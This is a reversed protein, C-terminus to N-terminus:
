PQALGRRIAVGGVLVLAEDLRTPVTITAPTVALLVVAIGLVLSNGAFVRWPLSLRRLASSPPAGPEDSLSSGATARDTTTM